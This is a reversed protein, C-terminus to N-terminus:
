KGKKKEMMKMMYPNMPKATKKGAPKKTPKKM